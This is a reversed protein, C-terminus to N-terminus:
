FSGNITAVGEIETDGEDGDVNAPATPRPPVPATYPNGVRVTGGEKWMSVWQRARVSELHAYTWIGVVVTPVFMRILLQRAVGDMEDWIPAKPSASFIARRQQLSARREHVEV